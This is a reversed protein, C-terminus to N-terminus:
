KSWFIWVFGIFLFRVLGYTTKVLVFFRANSPIECVESVKVHMQLLETALNMM